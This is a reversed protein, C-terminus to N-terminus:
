VGGWRNIDISRWAWEALEEPDDFVEEPIEYYPLGKGEGGYPNFNKMGADEFFSRNSDNAKLFCRGGQSVLAFMKGDYYIGAGGFMKKYSVGDIAALKTIFLEIIQQLEEKPLKM